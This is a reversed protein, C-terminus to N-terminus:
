AASKGVIVAVISRIKEMQDPTAGRLLDSLTPAKPDRLLDAPDVGLAESFGAIWSDNMRQEGRELKSIQGKNTGLREAVRDQTLDLHERWERLYWRLPGSQGIRDM